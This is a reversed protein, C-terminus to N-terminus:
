RDPELLTTLASAAETLDVRIFGDAGVGSPVIFRRTQPLVQTLTDLYEQDMYYRPARRFAQAQALFRHAKGRELMERQWRYAMAVHVVRAAEGRARTLMTDIRALMALRQEDTQADVQELERIAAALQEAQAVSGAVRALAATAQRRADEIMAEKEQMAGIQEQFAEAVGQPQPPHVGIIAAMKISVGLAMADADAQLRQRLVSSLALRQDGLLQEIDSTVFMENVRREALARLLRRPEQVSHVYAILDDIRYRVVVEAAVLSVGPTRSMLEADAPATDWADVDMDPDFTRDLAPDLAPDLTPAPGADLELEGIRDALMDDVPDTRTADGRGPEMAAATDPTGTILYAEHQAHINTWLVALDPAHSRDVSGVVIQQVRDVSYRHIKSIPWPLKLHLGPGVARAHTIAGFRTILAQEHPAVVVLCSTALMVAASFVLLPTVARGLLQYFWSRSVEFGFQYNITENIIKAISEPSTLWGLLRSEFAPRPREGPRRPRYAGLLMLLLIELGVLMMFGPVVLAMLGVFTLDAFIATFAAALLLVLMLVNGMLYGAGGRLLEWAPLRTMGSIYRATVFALIGAAAAFIVLGNIITTTVAAVAIARLNAATLAAGVEGRLDVARAAAAAAEQQLLSFGRQLLLGGAILLYLAVLVSVVNLGWKYLNDLRRRALGLDEAATEFISSGAQSGRALQEAELSEARELRHQQYILLLIVWIPAGGLLHWTIAAVAPSGSWLQVLASGVILTLQVGLGLLCALMARQYTQQDAKQDVLDNMLVREKM